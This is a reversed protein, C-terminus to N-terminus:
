RHSKGQRSPNRKAETAVEVGSSGNKAESSVKAGHNAWPGIVAAIQSGITDVLGNLTGVVPGKYVAITTAVLLATVLVWEASAAGSEDKWFRAALTKM